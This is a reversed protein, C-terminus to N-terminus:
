VYACVFVRVCSRVCGPTIISLSYFQLCYSIRKKLTGKDGVEYETESHVTDRFYNM